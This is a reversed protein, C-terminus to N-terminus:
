CFSSLVIRVWDLYCKGTGFQAQQSKQKMLFDNVLVIPSLLCFPASPTSSM